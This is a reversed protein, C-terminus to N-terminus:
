GCRRAMRWQTRVPRGGSITLIKPRVGGYLPTLSGIVAKAVSAMSGSEGIDVRIAKHAGNVAYRVVYRYLM